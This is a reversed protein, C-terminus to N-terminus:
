VAYAVASEVRGGGAKGALPRHKTKAGGGGTLLRETGGCNLGSQFNCVSTKNTMVKIINQFLNYINGIEALVAQGRAIAFSLPGM